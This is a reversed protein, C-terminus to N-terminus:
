LDRLVVRIAVEEKAIVVRQVAVQALYENGTVQALHGWWYDAVQNAALGFALCITTCLKVAPPTDQLTYGYTKRLPAFWLHPRHYLTQGTNRPQIDCM